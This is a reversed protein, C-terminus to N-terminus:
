ILQHESANIAGLFADLQELKAVFVPICGVGLGIHLRSFNYRAAGSAINLAMITTYCNSANGGLYEQM